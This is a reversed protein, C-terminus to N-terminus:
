ATAYRKLTALLKTAAAEEAAPRPGLRNLVFGAQDHVSGWMWPTGVRGHLDEFQKQIEPLEAALTKSALAQYLSLETGSSVCWFDPDSRTVEQLNARVLAIDKPKFGGWAKNAAHTVLEAAMRNLAPYYLMPDRHERAMTEAAGYHEAMTKIAALEAPANGALSELRALRKYASGLLSGREVTMALGVLSQLLGVAALIEKREQELLQRFAASPKGDQPPQSTKGSRSKANAVSGQEIRRWALRVRLNALQESAKASASGDQAQQAQAYWTVARQMDSAAAWALGFAEAVAGINGWPEKFQTELIKLKKVQLEPKAGQTSSRVALTELALALTLPSAIGAFEAALDPQVAPASSGAEELKWVWDPDGYCQYAAWTNGDPNVRRAALRGQYVAEMFRQGKVLSDYFAIAFSCAADDEVAWGAAVVCRVGVKILQKAVGAAFSARDFHTQLLKNADAALHCCNLFVLEPVVRMAQVERPGLFTGDSLVVGRPLPPKGPRELEPEGHGSIHVIRYRRALLAATVAAADPGLTQETAILAHVRSAAVRGSEILKNHVLEAEHRAGPLRAYHEPDALPEGIILVADERRADRVQQRFEVARLKRLLKARLAWPERSGGGSGAGSRDDEPAELLEWPIAATGDDLELVTESGSNLQTEMEVPVLLQFLTRGIQTDRNADNSARKVLEGVLRAQTSQARVESRARKTDLTYVIMPEDYEDRQMTASIFDYAAGRYGGDLPRRLAGAGFQVQPTLAFHDPATQALLQLAHWAETARDLYLEVLHLHVCAPWAGGHLSQNAQRVGQAVAQASTGVSIGTGGSGILTATLEFPPADPGQQQAVQQAWALTAQRVTRTLDASRLKGEEGLGAVVVYPPRPLSLPNGPDQKSNVFVQHTGTAEPYLGKSLSFSMANGIFGDVIHEAGTLKLSGYHGLMLTNSVFKLNANHVSIKLAPSEAQAAFRAARAGSRAKGGGSRLGDGTEGAWALPGITEFGSPEDQTLGACVAKATEEHGFYNFHTVERGEFFDFTALSAAGGAVRPVGGYMSSTQVVLDNSEWFYTNSLAEKLWSGITDGELDGAVVRLQSHLPASANNLWKVLASEPTMAELGPLLEPKERQSAIQGVFDLIQPAVPIGALQLAWKLVSVYVDMRKGALLTGRAPCAVRLMRVVQVDRDKLTQALEGLAQLQAKFEDGKFLAATAANVEPQACMRALVEAVLGGRSHTLLHLRAGKPLARALTLANDIPSATLTPHDLAYVRNGYFEFIENVLPAHQEWMKHFTGHTESFTGHLLVLIPGATADDAPIQDLKSGNAKLAGAFAEATLRYVGANVQSDVHAAIKQAALEAVPEFLLDTVVEISSLAVRGVAELPGGRRATTPAGPWNLEVPVVVENAAVGTGNKGRQTGAGTATGQAGQARMWERVTEPHLMLSPGNALTLVVADRGPRATLRQPAGSSRSVGVQVRQLVKGRGGFSSTSAISGGGRRATAAPVDRGPVIFTIDDGRPEVPNAVQTM